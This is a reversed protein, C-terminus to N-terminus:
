SEMVSTEGRRDRRHVVNNDRNSLLVGHQVQIFPGKPLIIEPLAHVPLVRRYGRPVVDGQRVIELPLASVPQHCHGDHVRSFVHTPEECQCRPDQRYEGGAHRLLM